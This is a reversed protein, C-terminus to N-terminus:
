HPITFSKRWTAIQMGVFAGAVGSAIGGLATLSNSSVIDVLRTPEAAVAIDYLIVFVLLHWVVMMAFAPLLFDTRAVYGGFWMALFLLAWSGFPSLDEGNHIEVPALDFVFLGITALSLGLLVRGLKGM